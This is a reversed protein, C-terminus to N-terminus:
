IAPWLPTQWKQSSIICCNPWKATQSQTTQSYHAEKSQLLQESSSLEVSHYNFQCVICLVGQYLLFLNHRISIYSSSPTVHERHLIESDSWYIYTCLCKGKGWTRTQWRHCKTSRNWPNWDGISFYYFM